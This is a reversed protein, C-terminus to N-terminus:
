WKNHILAFHFNFHTISLTFFPLPSSLSLSFYAFLSRASCYISARAQFAKSVCYIPLSLSRSLSFNMRFASRVCGCLFLSVVSGFCHDVTLRSRSISMPHFWCLNLLSCCAIQLVVMWCCCDDLFLFSLFFSVVYIERYVCYANFRCCCKAAAVHPLHM